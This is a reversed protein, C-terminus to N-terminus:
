GMGVNSLGGLVRRLEARLEGLLNGRGDLTGNRARRELEGCLEALKGAGVAASSSKLRHAGDRVGTADGGELAADIACMVTPADRRYAGLVRARVAPKLAELERVKKPDLAPRQSARHTTAYPLPPSSTTTM